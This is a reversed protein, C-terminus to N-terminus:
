KSILKCPTPKLYYGKSSSYGSQFGLEEATTNPDLPENGYTLMENTGHIRAYEAMIIGLKTGRNFIIHKSEGAKTNVMIYIANGDWDSDPGLHILKKEMEDEDGKSRQRIQESTRGMWTAFLRGTTKDLRTEYEVPGNALDYLYPCEHGHVFIRFQTVWDLM